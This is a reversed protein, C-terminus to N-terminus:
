ILDSVSFHFSLENKFPSFYFMTMDWPGGGLPCIQHANTFLPPPTSACSKFELTVYFFLSLLTVSCHSNSNILQSTVLGSSTNGHFFTFVRKFLMYRWVGCSCWISVWIFWPNLVSSRELLFGQLVRGYCLEKM